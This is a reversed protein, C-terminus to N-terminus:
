SQQPHTVRVHYKENNKALRDNVTLYRGQECEPSFGLAFIWPSLREVPVEKGDCVIEQISLTDNVVELHSTLADGTDKDGISAFYCTM